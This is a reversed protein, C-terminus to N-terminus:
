KEGPKEPHTDGGGGFNVGFQPADRTGRVKIPVLTGAGEKKFFRDVPKLLFGKWGGVIQSVTAQMRATGDMHLEGSLAYTGHLRIEAGPVQYHLDPLTIVGNAVQFSGQMQSTVSDPDAHKMEDPKGLGHYSLGEVKQQVKDSTFRADDLKFYGNLKIRQNVPEKGPPIEMTSKTEVTGTMLPTGNKSVLKMFDAMDGHPVDVKLQILHGPVVMKLPVAPVEQTPPEAGAAKGPVPKAKGAAFANEGGQPKGASGPKIRM